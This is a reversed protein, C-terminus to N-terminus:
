CIFKPPVCESWLVMVGSHLLFGSFVSNFYVKGGSQPVAEAAKNYGELIQFSPLGLVRELPFTNKRHGGLGM